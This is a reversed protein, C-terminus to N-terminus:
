VRLGVAPTMITKGSAYDTGDAYKFCHVWKQSGDDDLYVVTNEADFGYVSATHGDLLSISLDEYNAPLTLLNTIEAWTAVSGGVFSVTMGADVTGQETTVGSKSLHTEIDEYYGM